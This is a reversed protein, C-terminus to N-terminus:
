TREAEVAYYRPTYRRLLPRIGIQGIPSTWKETRVVAWGTKKLLSDFQWSEFEHFHQDYVDNMNRYAPAFWLRMPITAVLRPADLARLIEFPNHVHELIEFATVVEVDHGTVVGPNFDLDTDPTNTVTYGATRMRESLSNDVGLDLIRAPPSLAQGLFKITADFRRTVDFM